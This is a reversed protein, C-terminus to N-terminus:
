YSNIADILCRLRGFNKRDFDVVLRPLNGIEPEDAEAPLPGSLYINGKPILIDSFQEKIEQASQPNIDSTLRVVLQKEVYRM